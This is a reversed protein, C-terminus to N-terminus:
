RAFRGGWELRHKLAIDAQESLERRQRDTLDPNDLFRKERLRQIPYNPHEFAVHAYILQETDNSVRPITYPHRLIDGNDEDKVCRVAIHEVAEPAMEQRESLLMGGLGADTLACQQRITLYQSRVITQSWGYEVLAPNSLLRDMADSDPAGYSRLLGLTARVAASDPGEEVDMDMVNQAMEASRTVAIHAIDKPILSSRRTTFAHLVAANGYEALDTLRRHREEVEEKTHPPDYRGAACLATIDEPRTMSPIALYEADDEPDTRGDDRLDIFQDGDKLLFRDHQEDYVPTQDPIDDFGARQYDDYDLSGNWGAASAAAPTAIDHDGGGNGNETEYQGGDPRGKGKHSRNNADRVM